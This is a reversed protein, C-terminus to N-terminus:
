PKSSIMASQPNYCNAQIFKQTVEHIESSVEWGDWLNMQGPSTKQPKGKKKIKEPPEEERTEAKTSVTPLVRFQLRVTTLAPTSDVHNLGKHASAQIM